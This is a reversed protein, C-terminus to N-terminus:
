RNSYDMTKELRAAMKGKQKEDNYKEMGRSIVDEFDKTGSALEDATFIEPDKKNILKLIKGMKKEDKADVPVLQVGAKIGGMTPVAELFYIKGAELEAEVFDRNESRAWFLHSGPNCEYRMYKPGNFKGILQTSDFYSFNIAFGLASTRVFYVVAKGEPAPEITQAVSALFSFFLLASLITLKKMM